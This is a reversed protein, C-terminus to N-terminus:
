LNNECTPCGCDCDITTTGAKGECYASCYKEGEDAPCSCSANACKKQDDAMVQTEKNHQPSHAAM